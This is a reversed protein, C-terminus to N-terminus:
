SSRLAHKKSASSLNQAPLVPRKMGM